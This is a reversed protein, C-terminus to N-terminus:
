DRNVDLIEKSEFLEKIRKRSIGYPEATFNSVKDIKYLGSQMEMEYENAIVFVSDESVSAVKLLSYYNTPKYEYVDGAKPNNIYVVADKKHQSSTYSIIGIILAIIGLGSWYWLPSKANVNVNSYALKLQDNMEKPALTVKCNTCESVGKKGLPFFPIWYVHAYRGFISINHTTQQECNSCKIGSVQESHLHVGKSGYFIM